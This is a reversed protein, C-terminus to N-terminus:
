TIALMREQFVRLSWNEMQTIKNQKVYLKRKAWAVGNLFCRIRSVAEKHFSLFSCQTRTKLFTFSVAAKNEIRSFLSLKIECKKVNSHHREESLAVSNTCYCANFLARKNINIVADDDDDDDDDNEKAGTPAYPRWARQGVSETERRQKPWM